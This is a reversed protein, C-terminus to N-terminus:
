WVREWVHGDVAEIGWKPCCPLRRCGFRVGIMSMVNDETFLCSGRHLIVSSEGRGFRLNVNSLTLGSEVVGALGPPIIGGGGTLLM